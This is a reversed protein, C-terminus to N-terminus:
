APGQVRGGGTQMRRILESSLWADEHQTDMDSLFIDACGCASDLGSSGIWKRARRSSDAAPESINEQLEQGSAREVSRRGSRGDGARTRARSMFAV